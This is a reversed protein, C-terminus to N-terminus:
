EDTRAFPNKGGHTAIVLWRGAASLKASHTALVRRSGFKSMLLEDGAKNQLVIPDSLSEGDDAQSGPALSWGKEVSFHKRLMKMLTEAPLGRLVVSNAVQYSITDVSPSISARYPPWSYGHDHVEQYSTRKTEIYKGAFDFETASNSTKSAACAILACIAIGVWRFWKM